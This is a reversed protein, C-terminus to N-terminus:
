FTLARPNQRVLGKMLWAAKVIVEQIWEFLHYEKFSYFGSFSGTSIYRWPIKPRAEIEFSYPTVTPPELICSLFYSLISVFPLFNKHYSTTYSLSPPQSMWLSRNLTKRIDTLKAAISSCLWILRFIHIFSSSTHDTPNIMKTFTSLQQKM